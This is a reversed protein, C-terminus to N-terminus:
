QVFVLGDSQHHFKTSAAISTHRDLSLFFASSRLRPTRGFVCRHSVDRHFVSCGRSEVSQGGRTTGSTDAPCTVPSAHHPDPNLRLWSFM